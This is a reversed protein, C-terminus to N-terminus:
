KLFVTCVLYRFKSIKCNSASLKGIRFIISCYREPVCNFRKLLKGQMLVVLLNVKYSLHWHMKLRLSPPRPLDPIGIHTSESRDDELRRYPIRNEESNESFTNSFGLVNLIFNFWVFVSRLAKAIQHHQHSCFFDKNTM